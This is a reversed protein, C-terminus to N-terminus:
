VSAFVEKLFQEDSFDKSEAIAKQVFSSFNLNPATDSTKLIKIINNKVDIKQSKNLLDISHVIYPLNLKFDDLEGNLTSLYKLTVNKTTNGKFIKKYQYEEKKLLYAFVITKLVSLQNSDILLKIIIDCYASLVIIEIEKDIEKM